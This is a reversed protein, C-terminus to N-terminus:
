KGPGPWPTKERRARTKSEARPPPSPTRKRGLCLLTEALFLRSPWDGPDYALAARYDREADRFLGLILHDKALEARMWGWTKVPAARLRKANAAMEARRTPREGHNISWRRFFAAWPSRPSAALFASTAADLANWYDASLAHYNFQTDFRPWRLVNLVSVPPAGAAFVDDGAAAAAAFDNARVAQKYLELAAPKM